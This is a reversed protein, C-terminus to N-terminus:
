SCYTTGLLKRVNLQGWGQLEHTYGLNDCSSYLKLKVEKPSLRPEKEFLLAIAGSVIPTSMSTGSKECYPSNNRSAPLEPRYASNCSLIQYGPAVVDPKKICSLTPGCGSRINHGIGPTSGVTILKRSIGPSGITYLGPGGNGAACVVTLGADWLSEIQKVFPSQESLHEKNTSGFSLNVIRICYHDKWYLLWEIAQWLHRTDGTGDQALIKLVIIKANYAMGRLKPNIKGSGCLIGCIHTGHGSDDYCFKSSLLNTKPCIDNKTFDLFGIIQNNLDPHYISAGTDLVACVVGSGTYGHKHLENTRTIQRVQQM